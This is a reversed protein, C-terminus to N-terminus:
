VQLSLVVCLFRFPSCHSLVQNTPNLKCESSPDRPDTFTNPVHDGIQVLQDDWFPVRNLLLCYLSESLVRCCRKVKIGKDGPGSFPTQYWCSCPCCSLLHLCGYVHYTSYCRGLIRIRSVGPVVTWGRAKATAGSLSAFCSAFCSVTFLPKRARLLSLHLRCQLFNQFQAASM